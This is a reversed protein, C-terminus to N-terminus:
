RGVGQGRGGEAGPIQVKKQDKSGWFVRRQGGKGFVLAYLCLERFHDPHTVWGAATAKQTDSEGVM